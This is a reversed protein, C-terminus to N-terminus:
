SRGKGSDDLAMLNEPFPHFLTQENLYESQFRIIWSRLISVASSLPETKNRYAELIDLFHKKERPSLEKKFHGLAHTLVNIPSAHRPPRQLALRFHQGYRNIVIDKPKRDANAVIRGL